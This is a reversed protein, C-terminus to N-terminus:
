FSACNPPANNKSKAEHIELGHNEYVIHRLGALVSDPAEFGADTAVIRFTTHGSNRQAAHDCGGGILLVAGVPGALNAFQSLEVRM